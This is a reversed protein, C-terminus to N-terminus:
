GNIRWTSPRHAWAGWSSIVAFAVQLFTFLFRGDSMGMAALFIDSIIFLVFGWFKVQHSLRTQCLAGALGTLTGLIECLTVWHM